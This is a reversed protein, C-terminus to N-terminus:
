LKDALQAVLPFRWARGLFVAILGAVSLIFCLLSSVQFFAKGIVPVVLSFVALVEWIWIVVGQRAHFGVYPHVKGLVLPVLALIGLYSMAATIKISISISRHM